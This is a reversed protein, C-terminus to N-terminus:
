LQLVRFPRWLRLAGSQQMAAEAADGRHEQRVVSEVVGLLALERGGVDAGHASRFIEGVEERM